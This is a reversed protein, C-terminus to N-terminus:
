WGFLSFPHFPLFFKRSPIFACLCCETLNKNILNEAFRQIVFVKIMTTRRLQSFWFNERHFDSLLCYTYKYHYIIFIELPPFNGVRPWRWWCYKYSASSKCCCFLTPFTPLFREGDFAIKPRMTESFFNLNEDLETGRKSLAFNNWNSSLLPLSPFPSNPPLSPNLPSVFVYNIFSFKIGQFSDSNTALEWQNLICKLVDNWARSEFSFMEHLAGRLLFKWMFLSVCIHVLLPVKQKDLMVHASNRLLLSASFYSLFFSLLFIIGTYKGDRRHVPFFRKIKYGVM